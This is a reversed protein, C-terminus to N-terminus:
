NKETWEKLISKIGDPYKTVKFQPFHKKFKTSEFILDTAYRPFLEKSEKLNSNFLAGVKLQWNKLVKYEIKRGIEKEIVEIFGAYSLREDDCPLHWTQGYASEQHAILAMAKSADPTYILTRKFLDSLFIIPKQKNKVKDFVLSNTIGKTKGPGYFEPARCICAKIKQTGMANLLMEAVQKKIKGKRGIALFASEENQISKHQDYMYTNDFYVLKCKEEQCAKIVNSMITPWHSEWTASDYPLGVTLYVISSNRIANRTPEYDMLNAVMLEDSAHVKKPNRGVLRIQKTFDKYLVKALEEGIIGNAGLITEM